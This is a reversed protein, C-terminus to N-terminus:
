IMITCDPLWKKLEEIKVGTINTRMINLIRLSQLNKLTKPYQTLLKNISMDLAKLKKLNTLVDPITIFQNYSLDIITLSTLKIMSAPLTNLYNRAANIRTLKTLSGM